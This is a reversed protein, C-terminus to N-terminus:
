GDEEGLPAAQAAPGLREWAMEMAMEFGDVMGLHYPCAHGRWADDLCCGQAAERVAADGLEHLEDLTM